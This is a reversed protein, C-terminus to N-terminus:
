AKVIVGPGKQIPLVDQNDQQVCYEMDPLLNLGLMRQGHSALKAMDLLNDKYLQYLAYAGITEDNGALSLLDQGMKEM